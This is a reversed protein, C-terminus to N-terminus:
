SISRGVEQDHALYQPLQLLRFDLVRDVGRAWALEEVHAARLQDMSRQLNGSGGASQKGYGFNSFPNHFTWLHSTFYGRQHDRIARPGNRLWGGGSCCDFNLTVFRFYSETSEDTM